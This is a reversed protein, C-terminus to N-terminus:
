TILISKNELDVKTCKKKKASVQKKSNQTNCIIGAISCHTYKSRYFTDWFLFNEIFFWSYFRYSNQFINVIKYTYTYYIIFYRQKHVGMSLYIESVHCGSKLRYHNWM